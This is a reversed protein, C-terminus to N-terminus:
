WAALCLSSLAPQRFAIVLQFLQFKGQRHGQRTTILATGKLQALLNLGQSAVVLLRAGSHQQMRRQQTLHPEPSAHLGRLVVRLRCLPGPVQRLNMGDLQAVM